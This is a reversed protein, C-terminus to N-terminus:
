RYRWGEHEIWGQDHEGRPDHHTWHVVGGRDNWEYHGCFRVLHGTSLPVRPALDVNHSILVPHGGPLAAIFRQHRPGELDDALVRAVV